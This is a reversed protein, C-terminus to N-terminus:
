RKIVSPNSALRVNGNEEVVAGLTFNYIGEVNGYSDYGFFRGKMTFAYDDLTHAMGNGDEITAISVSKASSVGARNALNLLISSEHFSIYRNLVELAESRTMKVKETTTTTYVSTAEQSVHSDRGAGCGTFCLLFVFLVSISIFQKLKKM